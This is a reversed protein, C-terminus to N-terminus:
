RFLRLQAPFSPRKVRRKQPRQRRSGHRALVAQAEDAVEPDSYYRSYNQRAERAAREPDVIPAPYQKGILCGAKQQMSAPLLWPAHIFSTPVGELEPLWHRIFRGDPDHEQGQRVPNYIRVTRNGATGAQMQMQPYHIGPEYDVFMRALHLAPERWHLWLQFSAFTVLMARMRFNLWGGANLYRMSADVMPFGTDGTRWADFRARDTGRMGDFARVLNERETQPESELKQIFHDRGALRPAFAQLAQQQQAGAATAPDLLRYRRRAAQLAGKVSLTGYSFHPSLRSCADAATIPSSMGSLYNHCRGDVFSDLLELGVNEGGDPVPWQQPLLCLQDADPIRGPSISVPRLKEPTPVLPQRMREARIGPWVERTKLGRVVGNHPLETFSIGRARAWRRVAEDRKYSRLNGTEEHAWVAAISYHQSTSELVDLANGIRM